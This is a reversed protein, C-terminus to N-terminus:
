EPFLRDIMFTPMPPEAIAEPRSLEWYSTFMLTAIAMCFSTRVRRLSVWHLLIETWDELASKTKREIQTRIEFRLDPAPPIETRARNLLEDLTLNPKSSNSEM